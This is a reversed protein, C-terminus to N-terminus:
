TKLPDIKPDDNMVIMERIKNVSLLTELLLTYDVSWKMHLIMSLQPDSSTNVKQMESVNKWEMTVIAPPPRASKCFTVFGVWFVLLFSFFFFSCPLFKSSHWPGCINHHLAQDRQFHSWIHIKGFMIMNCIMKLCAKNINLIVYSNNSSFSISSIYGFYWLLLLFCSLQHKFVISM